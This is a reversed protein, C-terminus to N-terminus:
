LLHPIISKERFMYKEIMDIPIVECLNQKLNIDTVLINLSTNKKREKM